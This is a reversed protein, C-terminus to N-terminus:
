NTIALLAAQTPQIYFSIKLPRQQGFVAVVGMVYLLDCESSLPSFSFAGASTM